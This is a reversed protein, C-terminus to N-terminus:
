LRHRRKGHAGCLRLRYFASRGGIAARRRLALRSEPRRASFYFTNYGMAKAYQFILPSKMTQRTKDPLDVIGTLLLKNSTISCTTGSVALGWNKVFGKKDLEDLFPTTPREYGNLSLHGGSISEDIIFVINNSPKEAARLGVAERPTFNILDLKWPAGILTRYYAACSFASFNNATFCGTLTYFVLALLGVATLNKWGSQSRPKFVLSLILFVAVPILASSNAYIMVADIKNDLNTGFIVNELDEATTFRQLSSYYGYETAVAASFLAFYIFRYRYPASLASYVFLLTLLFSVFALFYNGSATLFDTEGSRKIPLFVSEFVLLLLVFLLSVLFITNKKLLKM